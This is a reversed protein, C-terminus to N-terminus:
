GRPRPPAARGVGLLGGLLGGLGGAALEEPRQPVRGHPTMRDVFDPLMASVERLLTESDTGARRAMSEVEDPDFAGALEAPTVAQNPGTGIWSEVQRSLGHARLADLLGGIGAVLGGLGGTAAPGHDDRRAGSAGALLDRLDAGVRERAAAATGLRHAPKMVQHLLLSLAAMRLGQGPGGEGDRLLGALIDGM